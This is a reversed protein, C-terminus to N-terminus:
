PSPLLILTSINSGKGTYSGYSPNSDMKITDEHHLQPLMIESYCEEKMKKETSITGGTPITCLM